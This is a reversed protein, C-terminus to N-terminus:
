SPWETVIAIVRSADCTICTMANGPEIEDQDDVPYFVWPLVPEPDGRESLVQQHTCDKFTLLVSV